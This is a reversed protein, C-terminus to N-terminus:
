TQATSEDNLNIRFDTQSTLERWDHVSIGDKGYTIADTMVAGEVSYQFM